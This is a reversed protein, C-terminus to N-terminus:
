EIPNSKNDVKKLAEVFEKHKPSSTVIIIKKEVEEISLGEKERLFDKIKNILKEAGNIKQTIFITLPKVLPYNKKNNKHNQYIIEMREKESIADEKEVYNIKKIVFNGAKKGEMAEMINYRYIVDAFYNNGIYPTGTFNVIYKFNFQPDLLFEKWKKISTKESTSAVEILNMIHHAEDNLVLTREGKNELSKRISSGTKSYIAQINEICIAGKSITESGNIISPNQYFSNVPLTAKLNPNTSLEKFKEILGSEITVSPCLVLVRDVAGECLLIQAIAYIVWSKGTGTALDITCALKNKLEIRKKLNELTGYYEQLDQNHEFNEKALQEISQYEGGLLFRVAEKIAEKQYERHLCLEDLFDDYKSIDLKGLDINQSVKLILSDTNINM